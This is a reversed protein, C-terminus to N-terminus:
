WTYCFVSVDVRFRFIVRSTVFSSVRMCCILMLLDFCLWVFWILIVRSHLVFVVLEFVCRQNGHTQAMVIPCCQPLLLRLSLHLSNSLPRNIANSRQPASSPALEGFRPPFAHCSPAQPQHAFCSSPYGLQQLTNRHQLVNLVKVALPYPVFVGSWGFSPAATISPSIPIVATPEAPSDAPHNLLLPRGFTWCWPRKTLKHSFHHHRHLSLPLLIKQTM